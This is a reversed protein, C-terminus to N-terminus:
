LDLGMRKFFQESAESNGELEPHMARVYAMRDRHDEGMHQVTMLLLVRCMACEPDIMEMAASQGDAFTPEHKVPEEKPEGTMEDLTRYRDSM